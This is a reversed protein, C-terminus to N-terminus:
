QLYQQGHMYVKDEGVTKETFDVFFERSRTIHRTAALDIWWSNTTPEAMMVETITM